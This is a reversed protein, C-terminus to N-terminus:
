EVGFELGATVQVDHNTSPGQAGFDGYRYKAALNLSVPHDNIALLTIDYRAGADLAHAFGHKSSWLPHYDASVQARQRGDGWEHRFTLSTATFPSLVHELATDGERSTVLLDYRSGIGLVLASGARESRWFELLLRADIVEINWAAEDALAPVALGATRVSVGFDFPVFLRRPPISPIVIHPSKRHRIFEGEYLVLDMAPWGAENLSLPAVSIAALRHRNKWCGDEDRACGNRLDIVNDLQWPVAGIGAVGSMDFDAGWATALRWRNGPDFRTRFRRHQTDIRYDGEQRPLTEKPGEEFKQLEIPYPPDPTQAVASASVLLSLTFLPVTVGVRLTLAQGAYGQRLLSPGYTARLAANTSAM